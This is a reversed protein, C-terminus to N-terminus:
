YFVRGLVYIAITILILLVAQRLSHDIANIFQPLLEELNVATVTRNASGVLTTVKTITDQYDEIYFPKSDKLENTPPMCFAVKPLTRSPIATRLPDWGVQDFIDPAPMLIIQDKPRYTCAGVTTAILPV